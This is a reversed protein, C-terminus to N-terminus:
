SLAISLGSEEFYSNAYQELVKLTGSLGPNRHLERVSASVEELIRSDATIVSLTGADGSQRTGMLDGPGRLEMDKRSIVFGDNTKCLIDMKESPEALLFCWSEEAGRGVRGRLQHLQSIGFRDANEIVMISANPNNIGVEIVTTSVLIDFEGHMFGNLIKDKESSKQAGWTLAIRLDKLVTKKLSEFMTKASRLDDAYESDDVTPCVIYAQRGKQIQEKLFRYMDERKFEPVLRTKVPMRGKPLESIVSIDLDGYLILALSRPIPTASMVLVHASSGSKDAQGKEQLATRQNVGFRHQEDTIVLGLRAYHVDRSILAHTGFVANCTGDRIEALISKRERAKTSGTLLRCTIGLPGLISKANEYHQVALIETPAMMSSQFGASFALFVAGFAVATKGSGVDGQVMRAMAKNRSLDEAIDNLVKRQSDTPNFPLSSWYADQRDADFHLPQAANRTAGSASVYLLYILIREFTLRRRAIELNEQNTPFHAERIAFNLECLRNSLRFSAPLTEQCCDDLHDLAQRILNRFSKSPFGKVARYVPIWGTDTVIHPNQLIRRGDKINLRGYLRVTEGQSIQRSIWPENYWCVPLKGTGDSITGQIRSLGHYYTSKLPDTFEGSVLINGPQRVSCPFVTCHDEYRVPLTYLLDRLSTIGMARLSELRVPGIGELDSLNM